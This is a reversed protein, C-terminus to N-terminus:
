LHRNCWYYVEASCCDFAIYGRGEIGECPFLYVDANLANNNDPSKQILEEFWWTTNSPYKFPTKLIEKDSLKRLNQIIAIKENEPLEFRIWVEHTDLNYQEHIENAAGSIIKPRWGFRAAGKKEAKDISPSYHYFEDSCGILLLSLVM